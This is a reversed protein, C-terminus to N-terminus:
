SQFPSLGDPPEKPVYISAPANDFDDFNYLVAAISAKLTANLSPSLFASIRPVLCEWLCLYTTARPQPGFLRNAKLSVGEIFIADRSNRQPATGLEYTKAFDDSAVVYTPLSDLSMEMFHEISKLAMQLQTVPMVLGRDCSYIEDSLLILSEEVNM